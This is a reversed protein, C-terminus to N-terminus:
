VEERNAAQDPVYGMSDDLTESHVADMQDVDVSEVDGYVDHVDEVGNLNRYETVRGAPQEYITKYKSPLEDKMMSSEDHLDFLSGQDSIRAFRKSLIYTICMTLVLPVACVAAAAPAEKLGLMVIVLLQKLILGLATGWFTGPFLSGGADYEAFTMFLLMYRFVIYSLGFFIVACISVLPSLSSYVIALFLILMGTGSYRFYQFVAGGSRAKRKQRETKALKLMICRIIVRVIGSLLLPLPILSKLLIFSAFFVGAGPVENALANIVNMPDELIAEFDRFFSSGLVIILFSGYLTFMYFYDRTKMEIMTKSAIRENGIVFRFLTPILSILVSMIVPPLLGEILGTVSPSLDNIFELWQFPSKASLSELNALGVIFAAPITWFLTFVIMFLAVAIARLEAQYGPVSFAPWHLAKPEPAREVLWETPSVSSNAQVLLATARKNTLLLIASPTPGAGTGEDHVEDALRDQEQAWHAQSNVKPAWCMLCGCVGPRMQPDAGKVARVHEALERKMVATDLKAQLKLAAAPSRILIVDAVQGPVIAEFRDRIAAESRQERPVDFVIAAFNVPNDSVRYKRRLKAYHAFDAALLSMVVFAIYFEAVVTAWFRGDGSPVNALSVIRLGSVFDPDNSLLNKNTSTGYTPMLVFLGFLSVAACILFATRLFRFFMAADLSIKSVVEEESTNFVPGLWGLFSNTPRPETIAVRRGNFNDHSKWTNLLYRHKYVDPVRTRLISFVVVLVVGISASIGAAYLFGITSSDASSPDTDAM